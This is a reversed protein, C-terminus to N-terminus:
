VENIANRHNFTEPYCHTHDLVCRFAKVKVVVETLTREPKRFCFHPKKSAVKTNKPKSTITPVVTV